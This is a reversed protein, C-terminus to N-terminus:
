SARALVRGDAFDFSQSGFRVRTAHADRSEIEGPGLVASVEEIRAGLFRNGEDIPTAEVDDAWAVVVDDMATVAAAVVGGERTRYSWIWADDGWVTCRLPPGFRARVEDLGAGM